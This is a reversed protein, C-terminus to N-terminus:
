RSLSYAIFRGAIVVFSWLLLAALGLARQLGDAPAAPRARARRAGALTMVGAGLVLLMKLQFVPNPLARDPEAVVMLAGTLLLIPLGYGITPLFRAYANTLPQERGYLGLAALAPMLTATFVAAVGLIHVTQVAPVLWDVEQLLRSLGTGALDAVVRDLWPGSLLAM